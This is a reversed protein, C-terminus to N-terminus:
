SIYDTRRPASPRPSRHHCSGTLRFAVSLIRIEDGEEGLQVRAHSGSSLVRIAVAVPLFSSPADETFPSCNESIKVMSKVSFNLFIENVTFENLFSRV